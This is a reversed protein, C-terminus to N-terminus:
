QEEAPVISGDAAFRGMFFESGDLADHREATFAPAYEKVIGRYVPLEELESRVESRDTSGAKEIAMALLHVLDYAHAVSFSASGLPENYHKEYHAALAASQSDRQPSFSVNQFIRLDLKKLAEQNEEFFSGGIIGWHSVIPLPKQMSAVGRVIEGGEIANAVMIVVDAGSQRVIEMDASLDKQGRNFLLKTVPPVGRNELYREIYGM